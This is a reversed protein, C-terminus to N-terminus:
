QDTYWLNYSIQIQHNFGAATEGIATLWVHNDHGLRNPWIYTSTSIDPDGNDRYQVNMGRKFTYSYKGWHRFRHVSNINASLAASTSLPNPATSGAANVTGQNYVTFNKISMIRGKRAFLPNMVWTRPLWAGNTGGAVPTPGVTSITGVPRLMLESFNGITFGSLLGKTRFMILQVQEEPIVQAPNNEVYAMIDIRHVKIKTGLRDGAGTGQVVNVMLDVPTWAGSDPQLCNLQFGGQYLKM